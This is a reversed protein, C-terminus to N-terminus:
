QPIPTGNIKKSDPRAIISCHKSFVVSVMRGSVITIYYEFWIADICEPRDRKFFGSMLFEIAGSCDCHIDIFLINIAIGALRAIPNATAASIVFGSCDATVRFTRKPKRGIQGRDASRCSRPSRRGRVLARSLLMECNLGRYGAM